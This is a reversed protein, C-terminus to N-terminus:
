HLSPVNSLEDIDDKAVPLPEALFEGLKEVSQVATVSLDGGDFGDQIGGMLGAWKEDGVARMVGSDAVVAVRAELQSVLVMVGTRGRTQTVGQNLFQLQTQEKVQRELRERSCLLRRIFPTYASFLWALAFLIILNLPLWLTVVFTPHFFAFLMVIFNLSVAFFLDIDRYSGSCPELAVVFEASTLKEAKEVASVIKDVDAKRGMQLRQCVGNKETLRLDDM